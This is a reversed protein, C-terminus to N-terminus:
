YEYIKLRRLHEFIEKNESYYQKFWSYLNKYFFCEMDHSVSKICAAGCMDYVPCNKCKPFKSSIIKAQDEILNNESLIEDRIYQCSYIKGSTDRKTLSKNVCYTEGYTFNYDYRRLLQITIGLYRRNIVGLKFDHIFTEISDKYQIIIDYIDKFDLAYQKNTDNTHHVIHPFFILEKNIISEKKSFNSIIKNFNTNGHYLTCSIALRPYDIIETLPDYDRVTSDNGDYSIIVLFNHKKFFDINEKLTTGNTSIAYTALPCAEVVRKIDKMYLTPEGGMFKIHLDKGKDKSLFDIFSDSLSKENDSKEKHCYTCNLNCKSGLYITIKKM